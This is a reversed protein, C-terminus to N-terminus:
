KEQIGNFSRSCLPLPAPCGGINGPFFDDESREPIKKGSVGAQM